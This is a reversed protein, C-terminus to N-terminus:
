DMKSALLEYIKDIQEKLEKNTNEFQSIKNIQKKLEENTDEFQSINLIAESLYQHSEAELEGSKVKKIYKKLEEVSAEYYLIEPFWNKKRRQYPLMLHLEIESLIEARLLLFSEENNKEDIAM